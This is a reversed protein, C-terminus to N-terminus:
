DISLHPLHHLGLKLYGIYLIGSRDFFHQESIIVNSKTGNM